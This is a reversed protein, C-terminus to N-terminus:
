VTRHLVVCYEVSNETRANNWRIRRARTSRGATVIRSAHASRGAMLNRSSHPPDAGEASSLTEAPQPRRGATDSGRHLDAQTVARPTRRATYTTSRAARPARRTFAAHPTCHSNRRAPHPVRRAAHPMRSGSGRGGGREEEVMVSRSVQM